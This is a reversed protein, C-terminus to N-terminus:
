RKLADSDAAPDPEIRLQVPVEPSYAVHVEFAPNDM